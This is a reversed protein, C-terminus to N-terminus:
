RNTQRIVSVTDRDLDTVYASNNNPNISIEYADGKSSLLITKLETNTDGDIVSITHNNSNIVYIITIATNVAINDPSGGGIQSATHILKSIIKLGFYLL